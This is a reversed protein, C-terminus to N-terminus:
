QLDSADMVDNSWLKQQLRCHDRGLAWPRHGLDSVVCCSCPELEASLFDTTSGLWILLVLLKWVTFPNIAQIRVSM